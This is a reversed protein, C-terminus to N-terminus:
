RDSPLGPALAPEPSRRQPGRALALLRGDERREALLPEREPELRDVLAVQQVVPPRAQELRSVLVRREQEAVVEVRVAQDPDPVDAAHLGAGIESQACSRASSAGPSPATQAALAARSPSPSSSDARAAMRSRPSARGSVSSAAPWAPASASACARAECPLFTIVAM